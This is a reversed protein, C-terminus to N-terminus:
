QLKERHHYRLLLYGALGSLVSGTLVGVRLLQAYEVGQNEFALAGIFLSMTFGVGCLISVAYLDFWGIDENLKAIGLKILIFCSSFIGLQKGLFLGVAIGLPIPELLSKISLGKVSFGANAFAFIPLVLFTVWPILAREMRVLPGEKNPSKDDIPIAFALVVGALTAHVGSKLVSIWLGLGLLLYPAIRKIGLRNITFLALTLIIAAILSAESLDETYFMAIIGIAYIDDLVAIATLFVKVAVPIAEGLLALIGLTFAIDTAVPIGWGRMAIPSGQNFYAYILAPVILGGFAGVAPLLVSDISNLSGKLFERKIELGVLLFFIAMLGDNIWLYMPKDLKLNAIQVIFHSDLLSTYLYSLPSNSMIIAAIAASFLLIGGFPESKVIAQFRM